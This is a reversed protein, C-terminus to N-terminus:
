DRGVQMLHKAWPDESSSGLVLEGGTSSRLQIDTGPSPDSSPEGETLVGKEEEGSLEKVERVLKKDPTLAQHQIATELALRLELHMPDARLGEELVVQVIKCCCFLLSKGFNAFLQLCPACVCVCVCM